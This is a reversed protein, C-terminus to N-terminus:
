GWLEGLGLSSHGDPEISPKSLPQLNGYCLTCTLVPERGDDEVCGGSVGGCPM